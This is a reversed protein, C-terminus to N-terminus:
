KIEIVTNCIPVGHENYFYYHYTGPSLNLGASQPSYIYYYVSGFGSYFSALHENSFLNSDGVSILNSDKVRCYINGNGVLYSPSFSVICDGTGPPLTETDESPSQTPEPVTSEIPNTAPETSPQTPAITPPPTTEVPKPKQTEYPETANEYVETQELAKSTTEKPTSSDETNDVTSDATTKVTEFETEKVVDTPLIKPTNNHFHLVAVSIACVFVLSVCTAIIRKNRIKTPTITSATALVKDAWEDSVTFNKMNDFNFDKM